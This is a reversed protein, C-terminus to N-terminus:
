ISDRDIRYNGIIASPIPLSRFLMLPQEFNHTGDRQAIRTVAEFEKPQEFVWSICLWHMLEDSCRTPLSERLRDIWIDSFVEVAEHVLYKDVLVAMKSLELLSLSKPVRRNCHHVICMLVAFSKPDDDPLAIEVNGDTQLATGEKFGSGLMAKFVPSAHSIHKSSVQMRVDGPLEEEDQAEDADEDNAGLGGDPSELSCLKSNDKLILIVDGLPDFVDCESM